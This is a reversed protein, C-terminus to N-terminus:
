VKDFVPEDEQDSEEERYQLCKPWYEPPDDWNVACYVMSCIASVYIVIPVLFPEIDLTLEM